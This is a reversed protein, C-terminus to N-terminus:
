TLNQVFYQYMGPDEEADKYAMEKQEEMKKRMAQESAKQKDKTIKDFKAQLEANEGNHEDLNTKLGDLVTQLAQKKAADTEADFATQADKMAKELDKKVKKADELRKRQEEYEREKAETAQQARRKEEKMEQQRNLEDFMTKAETLKENLKIEQKEFADIFKKIKPHKSEDEEEAM